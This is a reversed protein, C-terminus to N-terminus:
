PNQKEFTILFKTGNESSYAMDGDLQEVLTQVLQLGLSDNKEIVMNPPLGQGNDRVMIEINKDVEKVNIAIINLKGPEVAYKLANTILENMILGCPVAQDLILDVEDLDYNIIVQVEDSFYLARLNSVLNKIYGGFDISAFNTTRYLNEHIISMSRIRNRSEQLVGLTREDDIYNSQLNLISSIVQLNNKVRHHIEKLLIEKEKLSDMLEQEYQKKNTIDHAIISIESIKGNIDYIPNIFINLWRLNDFGINLDLQFSKGDKVRKLRSYFFSISEEPLIKQLLEIYNSGEQLDFFTDKFYDSVHSNFYTLNFDLDLTMVLNNSSSDYISKTKLLLNELKNETRVRESIESELRKNNEEAVQARIVEQDLKHQLYNDKMIVLFSAQKEYETPVVTVDVIRENEDSSDYLKLKRQFPRAKILELDLAANFLAQDEPIFLQYPLITHTNLLKSAEENAYLMKNEHIILIGEPMNELVNQFNKTTRELVNITNLRETIDHIVWQHYVQNGVVLEAIAVEVDIPAFKGKFKWNFKTIRSLSIREKIRIIEEQLEDNMDHTLDWISHNILGEEPIGFLQAGRRNVDIIEDGNMLLIVDNSEEYILRYKEESQRLAISARQVETVDVVTGEIFDTQVDYYFNFIFWKSSDAALNIQTQYNKLNHRSTVIDILEEWDDFFAEKFFLEGLQITNNFMKTFTSNCDVLVANRNLTFVGAQNKNYLNRYKQERLILDQKESLQDTVDNCHLTIFSNFRLQLRSFKVEIMRDNVPIVKTYIFDDEMNHIANKDVIGLHQNILAEFEEKGRISHQFISDINDSVEIAILRLDEWKCLVFGYISGANVHTLYDIRDRLYYYQMDKVFYFINIVLSILIFILLIFLKSLPQNSNTLCYSFLLLTLVYGSYILSVKFRQTLFQFIIVIPIFYVLQTNAFNSNVLEILFVFTFSFISLQYLILFNKAVFKNLTSATTISVTWIGFWLGIYASLNNVVGYLSLLSCILIIFLGFLWYSYTFANLQKYGPQTSNNVLYNSKVINLHFLQRFM